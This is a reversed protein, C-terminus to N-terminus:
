HTCVTYTGMKTDAWTRKIHVIRLVASQCLVASYIFQRIIKAAGDSGSLRARLQAAKELGAPTFARDATLSGVLRFGEAPQAKDAEQLRRESDILLSKNKENDKQVSKHASM